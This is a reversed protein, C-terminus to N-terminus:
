SAPGTEARGDLVRVVADALNHLASRQDARRPLAGVTFVGVDRRPVLYDAWRLWIRLLKRERGSGRGVDKMRAHIALLGPAHPPATRSVESPSRSTSGLPWGNTSTPPVPESRPFGNRTVREESAAAKKVLAKPSRRAQGVDKAYDGLAGWDVAAPTTVNVPRSQLNRSLGREAAVQYAEAAVALHGAIAAVFADRGLAFLTSATEARVTATRPVGHVLAVEGFYDGAKATAVQAGHREVVFHGTRVIYFRDGLGSSRM